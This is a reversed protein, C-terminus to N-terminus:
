AWPQLEKFLHDWPLVLPLLLAYPAFIAGMTLAPRDAPQRRRLAPLTSTLFFLGKYVAQFLLLPSFTVPAVLGAISTVAVATWMSGLTVAALRPAVPGGWSDQVAKRDDLLLQLGARGAGVVNLTYFARMVLLSTGSM